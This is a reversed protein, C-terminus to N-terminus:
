KFNRNTKRGCVLGQRIMPLRMKKMMVAVQEPKWKDTYWSFNAEEIM